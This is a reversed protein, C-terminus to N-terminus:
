LHSLPKILQSILKNAAENKGTSYANPDLLQQHYRSNALLKEVEILEKFTPSFSQPVWGLIFVENTECTFPLVKSLDWTWCFLLTIIFIFLCEM